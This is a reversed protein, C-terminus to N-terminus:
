IHIIIIHMATIHKFLMHQLLYSQRRWICLDDVVLVLAGAEISEQNINLTMAMILKPKIITAEADVGTASRTFVVM